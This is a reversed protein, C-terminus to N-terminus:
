QSSFSCSVTLESDDYGTQPFSAEDTLPSWKPQRTSLVSCCCGLCIIWKVNFAWNHLKIYCTFSNSLYLTTQLGATVQSIASTELLLSLYIGAPWQWAQCVPPSHDDAASALFGNMMRVKEQESWHRDKFWGTPECQPFCFGHLSGTSVRYGTCVTQSQFACLCLCICWSGQGCCVRSHWFQDVSIGPLFGAM